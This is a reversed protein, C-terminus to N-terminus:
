ISYAPIREIENDICEVLLDFYIGEIQKKINGHTSIITIRYLDEWGLDICVYGKHHHGNVKLAVWKHSCKGSAVGWSWWIKKNTTLVNMTEQPDFERRGLSLILEFVKNTM